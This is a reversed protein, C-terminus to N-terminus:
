PKRYFSEVESEEYLKKYFEAKETDGATLASEWLRYLLNLEDDSFRM